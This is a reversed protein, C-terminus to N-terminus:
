KTGTNQAGSVTAHQLTQRNRAWPEYNDFTCRGTCIGISMKLGLLRKLNSRACCLFRHDSGIRKPWTATTSNLAVCRVSETLVACMYTCTKDVPTVSVGM